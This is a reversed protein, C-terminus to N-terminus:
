PETLRTLKGDRLLWPLGSKPVVVLAGPAFPLLSGIGPAVGLAMPEKEYVRGALEAIKTPMGDSITVVDRQEVGYLKGDFPNFAVTQYYQAKLLPFERSLKADSRHRRIETDADFHSMSWSVILEGASDQTIGTVYHLSDGYRVWSGSAPNLGYLTGGWEGQSTGIWLKSKTGLVSVTNRLPFPFLSVPNYYQPFLRRRGGSYDPGIWISSELKMLALQNDGPTTYTRKTVADMVGTELVLLPRGDVVAFGRVPYRKQSFNAASKWSRDPSSWRYVNSAGAAWLQTGDTALHTLDDRAFGASTAADFSGDRLRWVRVQGKEDLHILRDEQMVASASHASEEPEVLEAGPVVVVAAAIVAYVPLM